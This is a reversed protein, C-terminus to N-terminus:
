DSKNYICILPTNVTSVTKSVFKYRDNIFSVGTQGDIGLTNPMLSYGEQDPCVTNNLAIVPSIQVCVNRVPSVKDKENEYRLIFCKGFSGPCVSSCLSSNAPKQLEITFNNGFCYPMDFLFDTSLLTSSSAKEITQKLSSLSIDISKSCKTNSLSSMAFSGAVLVFGLLIVAILVEFVTDAQGKSNIYLKTIM